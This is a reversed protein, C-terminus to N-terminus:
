SPVLCLIFNESPKNKRKDQVNTLEIWNCLKWAHVKCLVIDVALVCGPSLTCERLARVDDLNACTYLYSLQPGLSVTTHKQLLRQSWQLQSAETCHVPAWLRLETTYSLVPCLHDDQDGPICTLAVSGEGGWVRQLFYNSLHLLLEQNHKIQM